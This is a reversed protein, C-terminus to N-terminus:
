LDHQSEKVGPKKAGNKIPVTKDIFAVAKVPAGATLKMMGEVIVSDGATLGKDILWQNKYWSGVEIDRIQAKSEKDVVWVFHGKAGQFVAQQPVLIAAPRIGGLLNVRLFQGPRLLNKPNAITARVLFTGTQQNYEADAFTLRGKESYLSGDALLVEVVYSQDKPIRFLGRESEGRYKLVDNESVSFNVWMPDIQSVYTLLNNKPSIYTGEQVRAYSSQGSIPTSITTYNLNLTATEVNAKAVEVAAAAAQEQGIAEDLDKQSLAHKRVLPKVRALNAQATQLRAQQEALAGQQADLQTKFPKADMLFMVDGAHVFRGEIYTQKDLFGNVRARIEVQHSSQTQGIFEITVPTDKPEIKIVSVESVQATEPGVKDKCGYLFAFVLIILLSPLYTFLYFQMQKYHNITGQESQM